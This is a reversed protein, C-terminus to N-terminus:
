TILAVDEARHCAVESSGVRRLAPVEEHCRETAFPCRTALVCGQPARGTGDRLKFREDPNASHALQLARSYPHASSSYFAEAPALEMLRGGYLVAVRHAVYRVVALDHSIFLAAFQQARQLDRLLNLIQAQVSVDLASVIEDLVLLRPQTALARAIAVRQQQGGSLEHPYRAAVGSPLGVRELLTQVDAQRTPRQKTGEVALPEAISTGCRLRPNLSWQPTQLVVQRQGRLRRRSRRDLPAGDFLVQGSTPRHLGLSLRALTSKGSGSEGVLGLTEGASLDLSVDKLVDASPHARLRSSEYRFDVRQLELISPASEVTSPQRRM